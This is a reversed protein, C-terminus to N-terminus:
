SCPKIGSFFSSPSWHAVSSYSPYTVPDATSEHLLPLRWSGRAKELCIITFWFQHWPDTALPKTCFVHPQPLKCFLAVIRRLFTDSFSSRLTLSRIRRIYFNGPWFTSATPECTKNTTGRAKRSNLFYSLLNMRPSFYGMLYVTFGPKHFFDLEDSVGHHLRIVLNALYRANTGSSSSYMRPIDGCHTPIM